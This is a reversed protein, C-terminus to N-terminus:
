VIVHFFYDVREDFHFVTGPKDVAFAVPAADQGINRAREPLQPQVLRSDVARQGIIRRERDPMQEQRAIKLHRHRLHLPFNAAHERVVPDLDQEFAFILDVVANEALVGQFVLGDEPLDGSQATGRFAARIVLQEFEMDRDLGAEAHV